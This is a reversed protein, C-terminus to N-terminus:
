SNGQWRRPKDGSEVREGRVLRPRKYPTLTGVTLARPKQRFIFLGKSVAVFDREAIERILGRRKLEEAEDRKLYLAPLADGLEKFIRCKLSMLAPEGVAFM